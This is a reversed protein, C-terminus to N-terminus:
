INYTLAVFYLINKYTQFLRVRYSLCLHNDGFSFPTTIFSYLFKYGCLFCIKVTKYLLNTDRMTFNEGKNM